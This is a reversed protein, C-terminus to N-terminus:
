SASHSEKDAKARAAFFRLINLTETAKATDPYEAAVHETYEALTFLRCGAKVKHPGSEMRLLLFDYSDNIRRCQAALAAVRVEGGLDAGGLNAGGLDAGYLDAGRLNAGGLNAGYLNASRLNAGGLNAGSLNAGSLNAGYLDAGYLNAGLLNAGGLNAKNVVAWRVVLGLRTSASASEAEIEATFQAAGTFRNKVEFKM